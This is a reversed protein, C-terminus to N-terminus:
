AIRSAIAIPADSPGPKSLTIMETLMTYTAGIAGGGGGAAGGRGSRPAGRAMTSSYMSAARRLPAPVGAIRNVWSSGFMKLGIKTYEAPRTPKLMIMAELRLKRPSPERGGM